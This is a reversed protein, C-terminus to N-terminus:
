KINQKLYNKFSLYASRHPCDDPWYLMKDCRPKMRCDSCFIDYFESDSAVDVGKTTRMDLPELPCASMRRDRIPFTYGRTERTIVCVPYDGRDDLMHCEACCVPMEMGKIIVDAM